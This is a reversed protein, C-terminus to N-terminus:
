ASLVAWAEFLSLGLLVTVSYAFPVALKRFPAVLSWVYRRTPVFGKLQWAAALALALVACAEGVLLAMTTPLHFREPATLVFHAAVVISAVVAGALLLGVIFRNTKSREFRAALFGYGPVLCALGLNHVFIYAIFFWPGFAETTAYLFGFLPEGRLTPLVIDLIGQLISVTALAVFLALMVAPWRPPTRM